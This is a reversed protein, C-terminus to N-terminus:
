KSMKLLRQTNHLNAAGIGTCGVSMISVCYLLVRKHLVEQLHALLTRFMYLSKIRLLNFLHMVNTKSYQGLNLDSFYGVEKSGEAGDRITNYTKYAIKHTNVSVDSIL